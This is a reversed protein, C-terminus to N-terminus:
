VPIKTRYHLEYRDAALTLDVTAVPLDDARYTQQIEVIPVGAPIDLQRTEAPTPMRCALIEELDTVRHGIADFRPVIGQNAHPGETPLEIDTGRTLALPEWSLSTSVPQGGIRIFYSTQTVEDGPEIALREAVEDPAAITATSRQVDVDRGAREAELAYTPKHQPRFYRDPVVRVLPTEKRVFVGKGKISHVLGEGRLINIAARATIGSVNWQETIERESPLKDGRALEGSQIRSRFHDAIAVYAPTYPSETM